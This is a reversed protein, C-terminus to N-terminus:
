SAPPPERSDGGGSSDLSGDASDLSGDATPSSRTRAAGRLRPLWWPLLALMLLAAAVGVVVIWVWSSSSTVPVTEAFIGPEPDLVDVHWTFTSVEYSDGSGFLSVEGRLGGSVEDADYQFPRGPLTISLTMTPSSVGREEMMAVYFLDEGTVEEGFASDSEFRWGGDRLRRLSTGESYGFMESLVSDGADADWHIEMSTRCESADSESEVIAGSRSASDSLGALPHDAGFMERCAKEFDADTAATAEVGMEEAMEAAIGTLFELFERHVTFEVRQSGSGDDNIRMEVVTDVCGVTFVASGVVLAVLVLRRLGRM